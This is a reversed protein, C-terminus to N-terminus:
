LPRLANLIALIILGATLSFVASFSWDLDLLLGFSVPGLATSFVMITTYLSRIKGIIETGYLEALLASKITSGLGNGLGLLALAVPYAIAQKFFVLVVIGALFPVMYYPFLRKGTFRDVLPGSALMGVAGAIAFSSVSFAVWEPSWGRESGLKLQFFFLATNAFGPLFSVPFIVWFRRELLFHFTRATNQHRPALPNAGHFRDIRERSLSLLVFALPAVVLVCIAGSVQLAPRWGLTGILLTVILPLTAEGCPHGIGAISIAKGRSRDFYRAMSATATHSMLGQGFLRLGFFSMVVVVLHHAVSLLSLSGALGLICAIAYRKLSFQDFYGGLWPLVLASGITAMAYLSGLQTNTVELLAQIDPLYLSLLFTQGFGSFYTLLLGFSLLGFRNWTPLGASNNM